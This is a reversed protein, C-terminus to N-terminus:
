VFVVALLTLYLHIAYSLTKEVVHLRFIAGRVGIGGQSQHDGVAERGVPPVAEDLPLLINKVSPSQGLSQHLVSLELLAAPSKSSLRRSAQQMALFHFKLLLGTQQYNKRAIGSAKKL